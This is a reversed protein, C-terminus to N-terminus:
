RVQCTSGSLPTHDDAIGGLIERIEENDCDAPEKSHSIVFVCPFLIAPFHAFAKEVGALGAADPDMWLVVKKVARELLHHPLYKPISTGLCSIPALQDLPVGSGFIKICDFIGEVLIAVAPNFLSPVEFWSRARDSEKSLKWGKKEPFISRWALGGSTIRFGVSLSSARLVPHAARLSERTINWGRCITDIAFEPISDMGVPETSSSSRNTKLASRKGLNFKSVLSRYSKIKRALSIANFGTKCVFCQGRDKYPNWSLKRKGCDPCTIIFESRSVWIGDVRPIYLDTDEPQYM